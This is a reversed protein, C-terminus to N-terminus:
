KESLKLVATRSFFVSPTEIVELGYKRTLELTANFAAKPVHFWPEIVFILAGPNLLSVLERVVKEQNQIEHLVWFALVFDVKQTLGLQDEGCLHMEVSKELSTGKIKQGVIDLMGKQLDAAIVKGKQNLLKAIEVSFFGPGCGLDLVTMGEKVFPHVIKKPNQTLRRAFNDLGGAMGVPCTSKNLHDIKSM